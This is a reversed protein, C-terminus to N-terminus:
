PIVAQGLIYSFGGSINIPLLQRMYQDIFQDIRAIKSKPVYVIDYPQLITDTKGAFIADASLARVVPSGTSGKRVLIVNKSQALHTLGGAQVIAAGLTMEGALPVLGPHGVEGGVYVQIYTKPVYVVDGSRLPLDAQKKDIIDQISLSFRQTEAGPVTRIVTMTAEAGTADKLGGADVVAQLATLNNRIGIEGPHFVEGGVYVNESSFGRVIVSIRPNRFHKSFGDTLTAALQAPTVGAAPIDNLILVTIKGDPRIRALQDLEPMNYARIEIDDGRQLVYEQVDPTSASAPANQGPASAVALSAAAVFFLVTEQFKTLMRNIIM